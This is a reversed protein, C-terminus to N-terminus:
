LLILDASSILQFPICKQIMNALPYMLLKHPQYVKKGKELNPTQRADKFHTTRIRDNYSEINGPVELIM